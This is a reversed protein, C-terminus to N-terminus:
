NQPKGAEYATKIADVVAAPDTTGQVLASSQALLVDNLGAVPWDPYWALSGADGSLLDNFRSTVLQGVPDTIASEEAGVPVGGLNGLENQIEPRLTIDIFDYALQKNEAKSPVVWLNGGSGPHLDNGPFLVQSWTFDKIDAGFPGAWWTGSYFLPYKGAEFANGSDQASIGTSDKSIYGKDVWEKYTTAAKTWADWDPEGAFQQYDAWSSEDMNALALAYLLHPGPYDNSGLALPTVGNDKFTQMVKELEDLTTPVQLDYKALEDENYFLGVYEGYNTVGYRQGSGMIGDQYLGVDQASNDLKWGKETAVDTLDTLLGAKSVVGATANGKLYEIVDPADNSDLILQASQQMQEYTKLEFQVDVDPHEAKFTEIAKNWTQSLPSEDNEWWWVKLTKGDEAGSAGSSASGGGGCATLALAATLAGAAVAVMRRRM